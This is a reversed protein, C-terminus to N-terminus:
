LLATANFKLEEKRVGLATTLYAILRPFRPQLAKRQGSPSRQVVGFPLRQTACGGTPTYVPTKSGLVPCFSTISTVSISHGM